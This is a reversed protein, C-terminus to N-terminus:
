SVDRGRSGLRMFWCPEEYSGGPAIRIHSSAFSALPDPRDPCREVPSLPSHPIAEGIGAGRACEEMDAFNM